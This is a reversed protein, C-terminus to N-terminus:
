GMHFRKDESIWFRLGRRTAINAVTSPFPLTLWGAAAQIQKATAGNPRKCLEIVRDIHSAKGRGRPPRIVPRSEATEKPPEAPEDPTILQEARKRWEKACREAVDALQLYREPSREQTDTTM